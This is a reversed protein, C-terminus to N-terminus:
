RLSMLWRVLDARDQDTLPLVTMRSMPNDFQPDVLHADLWLTLRREPDPEALVAEIRVRKKEYDAPRKAKLDAAIAEFTRSREVALKVAETMVPGVIGGRDDIKHCIVCRQRALKGGFEVSGVIEGPARPPPPEECAAVLLCVSAIAHKWM